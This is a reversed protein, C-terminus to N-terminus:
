TLRALIAQVEGKLRPLDSHLTDWVLELNVRFYQHALLDRFRAVDTWAVNPFSQRVDAPLGKVAVGIIELRRIVADQTKIDHYFARADLGLVHEELRAISELIDELLVRPDRTM